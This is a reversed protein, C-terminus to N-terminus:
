YATHMSQTNGNVNSSKQPSSSNYSLGIENDRLNNGTTATNNNTTTGRTLQMDFDSVLKKIHSLKEHLYDFRQKKNQFSSDDNNDKYEQIILNQIEKYKREDTPDVKRLENQLNAFRNRAKEMVAHLTRYEAYDKDFETKYKRRQEINTIPPYDSFSNKSPANKTERLGDIDVIDGNGAMTRIATTMTDYSSSTTTKITGNTRNRQSRDHVNSNNNSSSSSKSQGRSNNSSSTMRKSIGDTSLVTFNLGGISNEELSNPTTNSGYYDENDRSRSNMFSSGDRSSNDYGSTLRISDITEHPNKKYHSIRQKKAVPEMYKDNMINSNMNNNMSSSSQCSPRKVLPPPSGNHQSNPSQGSTSSSGGDSSLPPTLNQPKRRKLTVRDQETYFPWDEHVDNWIHRHLVYANDRYYSISKLVNLIVSRDREKIGERNLRDYLEPRKFPRLALLHILREKIPKKMIDPYRHSQQGNNRNLNHGMNSPTRQQHDIVDDGVVVGNLANNHHHSSQHHYSDHHHDQSNSYSNHSNIAPIQQQQQQSTFHSMSNTNGNDNAVDLSRKLSNSSSSNGTNNPTSGNNTTRNYPSPVISTSKKTIVKRGIDQQNPKIERTCKTKQKEAALAMSRRTADYSDEQAQVRMKYQVPGLVNMLGSSQQICEFLGQTEESDLQFSFKQQELQQSGNNGFTPFSLFGENGTFQISPKSSGYKSQNKVFEEIARLASDTLKVYILEKNYNNQHQTSLNFCSDATLSSAM